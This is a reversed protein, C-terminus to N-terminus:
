VEDRSSPQGHIRLRYLCTSSGGWNDLIEVVFVGFDMQLPPIHHYVPFTQVHSAAKIDYELDALHVFQYGNTIPPARSPSPNSGSYISFYKKYRDGNQSGDVSGWLRMRRPAEDVNDAFGAPVHDVTIHSPYILRTVSVGVQGHTDPITWCHGGDFNPRLIVEPRNHPGNRPKSVEGTTLKPVIRAGDAQFAYDRLGSVHQRLITHVHQPISPEVHM